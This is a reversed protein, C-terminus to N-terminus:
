VRRAKDRALDSLALSSQYDASPLAGLVELLVSQRNCCQSKKTADPLDKFNILRLHSLLNPMKSSHEFGM